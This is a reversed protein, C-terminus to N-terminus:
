KFSEQLMVIKCYILFDKLTMDKMPKATEEKMDELEKDTINYSIRFGGKDTYEINDVYKYMQTDLEREVVKDNWYEIEHGYGCYIYHKGCKSRILYGRIDYKGDKKEVAVEENDTNYLTLTEKQEGNKLNCKDLREEISLDKFTNAGVKTSIDRALLMTVREDISIDKFTSGDNEYDGEKVLIDIM